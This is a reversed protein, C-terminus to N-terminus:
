GDSVPTEPAAPAPAAAVVVRHPGTVDFPVRKNIKWAEYFAIGNIVLSFPAQVGVLIPSIVIAGATLLGVVLSMISSHPKGEMAKHMEAIFYPAYNMAISIYTLAIALTQYGAGGRGRAGRQVGKGVALGVVVAVLGLEYGTIERVAYFIGAGGIAALLGYGAATFFRSTPTGQNRVAALHHHCRSCAPRANITFFQESIGGGCYACSSAEPGAYEARDFQLESM